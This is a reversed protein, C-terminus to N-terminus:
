NNDKIEEIVVSTGNAVVGIMNGHFTIYDFDVGIIANGGKEASKIILKEVAANKATELKDAFKESAEGFFDAFAASFESLFGTGLVVQGSIVGVYKTIKYGTFDYGTTLMYNEIFRKKAGQKETEEIVTNKYIREIKNEIEQIISDKYLEHCKELIETKLLDFEVKSKKYRLNEMKSQIPEACAFCLIKDDSLDMPYNSLMGVKKGCQECIQAM